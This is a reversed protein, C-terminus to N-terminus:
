RKDCGSRGPCSGCSEGGSCTDPVKSATALVKGFAPLSRVAAFDACARIRKRATELGATPTQELSRRLLRFAADQEGLRVKLRAVDRLQAPTVEKPLSIAADAAAAEKRRGLRALAVGQLAREHFTPKPRAGLLKAAGENRDLALLTEALRIASSSTNRNAHATRDLELSHKALGEDLYFAHLTVAVTEWREPRKDTAMLKRLRTVRGLIMARQAYAENKPAAKRAELYAKAAGEVDGQALLKEGRAAHAAGTAVPVDDASAAAAFVLLLVTMARM